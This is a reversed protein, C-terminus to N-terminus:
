NLEYLYYTNLEREFVINATDALRYGTSDIESDELRDNRTVVFDVRREEIMRRQEEDMEPLEINLRCFYRCNPTVGAAMYFGGDLFGYNLLAADQKQCITEAFRYQPMDTKRYFILYTNGSFLFALFLALCITVALRGGTFKWRALSFKERHDSLYKVASGFGFPVFAALILGYYVAFYKGGAFTAAVLPFFASAAVTLEDRCEKSQKWLYWGFFILFVSSLGNLPISLAACSLINLLPSLLKLFFNSGIKSPYLFINNYFYTQFMAKLSDTRVFYWILPVTVLATGLLFAATNKLLQRTNKRRAYYIAVGTCLGLYFSSITFKSWLSIGAFLGIIFAYTNKIDNTGKVARLVSLLSWALMFLSFEEVSGGHSFAPSVAASFALVTMVAALARKSIKRYLLVCEAGVYLYATFCILEILFVGTFDTRSILAAVAYVFYVLIGKQEYIDRYMVKGESLSRGVTFFCNVDGWDNMPYLFSNKSCVTLFAFAILGALALRLLWNRKRETQM